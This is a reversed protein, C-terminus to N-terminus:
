ILEEGDYEPPEVEEGHGNEYYDLLVNLIKGNPINKTLKDKTDFRRESEASNYDNAFKRFRAVTEIDTKISLVM